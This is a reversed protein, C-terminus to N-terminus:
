LVLVVVADAREKVQSGAVVVAKQKPRTSDEKLGNVLVYHLYSSKQLLDYTCLTVFGEETANATKM